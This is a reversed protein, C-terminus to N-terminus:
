VNIVIYPVGGPLSQKVENLIIKVFGLEIGLCILYDCTTHIGTWCTKGDKNLCFNLFSWGGGIDEHFNDPLQELMEEIEKKFEKVKEPNFKCKIVVGQVESGPGEEDALCQSFIVEVRDPDIM